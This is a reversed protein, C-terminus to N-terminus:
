RAVCAPNVRGGNRCEVLEVLMGMWPWWGFHSLITQGWKGEGAVGGLLPLSAM